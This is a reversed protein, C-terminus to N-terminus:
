PDRGARTERRYAELYCDMALRYLWAYDSMGSTALRGWRRRAMFLIENLLEDVDIRASFAPDLRRQLVARLRSKHQEFLDTLKALESLSGLGSGDDMDEHPM